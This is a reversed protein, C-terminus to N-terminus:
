EDILEDPLISIVISDWWKGDFFYNNRLVGDELFGINTLLDRKQKDFSYTETWIRQLGLENFGYRLLIAVSDKAYGERDIYSEKMGIYISLEARRHVWNVHNFGCCGLLAKDSTRRIAYMLTDPDGIVIEEYWRQHQDVSLERYERFFKRINPNNRWRQLQPLDEREIAYLGVLKGNLM